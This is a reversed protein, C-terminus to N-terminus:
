VVKILKFTERNLYVKKQVEKRTILNHIILTVTISNNGFFVNNQPIILNQQQFAKKSYPSRYNLYAAAAVKKAKLVMEQIVTMKLVGKLNTKHQEKQNKNYLLIIM